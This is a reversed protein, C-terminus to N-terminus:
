GVFGLATVPGDLTADRTDGTLGRLQTGIVGYAGQDAVPSSLLAEVDDAVIIPQAPFAASSGDVAVARVQTAGTLHHLLWVTTPSSWAIDQIRMPAKEDPSIPTTATAAVMRGDEDSRMRSVVLRDGAVDRRVAVLRTGDRSVLFRGIDRGSVGPLDIPHQQGEGDVYSVEAGSRSRDVLWLRGAVDWAPRLFDRGRAVTRSEGDAHVAALQVASGGTTVGAAHEGTLDVAVSRLGASRAGFPGSVATLRPARGSVLRGRDDLGFMESSARYGAPDYEPGDSVSFQARGGPLQVARGAISLKISSVTPDQRLTWALQATLLTLAQPTPQTLQDPGATLAIDATGDEDVPVSLGEGVGPPLFSRVIGALEPSPGAVLDRVLTTALQNGRPVFVPEPVLVRGTPDFFYLSLQTFRAEFWSIPVILANPASAIRWEGDEQRLGFSLHRGAAPVAGQWAGRADLRYAGTLDVAIDAPEGRAVGKETYLITAQGPNWSTRADQTLFQQAARTQAPTALMADLFGQVIETPSAGRQPPRPDISIGPVRTTQPGPGAEVVGGSTPMRVGCAVLAPLLAVGVALLLRRTM